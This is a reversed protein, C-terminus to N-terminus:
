LWCLPPAALLQCWCGNRADRRAACARQQQQCGVDRPAHQPAALTGGWTWASCVDLQGGCCDLIAAAEIHSHRSVQGSAGRRGAASSGVRGAEVHCGRAATQQRWATVLHHHTYSCRRHLRDGPMLQWAGQNLCASASAKARQLAPRPRVAASSTISCCNTVVATPTPQVPKSACCCTLKLNAKSRHLTCHLEHAVVTPQVTLPSIGAPRGPPYFLLHELRQRLGISNWCRSCNPQQSKDPYSTYGAGILAPLCAALSHIQVHNHTAKCGPLWGM